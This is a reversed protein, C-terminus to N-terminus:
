PRPPKVVIAPINQSKVVSRRAMTLYAEMKLALDLRAAFM